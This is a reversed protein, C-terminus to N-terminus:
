DARRSPCLGAYPCFRCAQYTPEARFEGSRIGVAVEDIEAQARDVTRDTPTAHGVVLAPSLFRLEVSAPLHGFM